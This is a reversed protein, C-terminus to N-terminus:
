QCAKPLKKLGEQTTRSDLLLSHQQEDSATMVASAVLFDSNADIIFSLQELYFLLAVFNFDILLEVSQMDL